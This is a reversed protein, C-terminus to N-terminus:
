NTTEASNDNGYFLSSMVPHQKENRLFLFRKKKEVVAGDDDGDGCGCGCGCGDGGDDDENYQLLMDHQMVIM